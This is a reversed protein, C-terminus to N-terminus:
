RPSHAAEQIGIFSRDCFGLEADVRIREYVKDPDTLVDPDFVRANIAGYTVCRGNKNYDLCAYVSTMVYMGAVNDIFHLAKSTRIVTINREGAIRTDIARARAHAIDVDEFYMLVDGEGEVLLPQGTLPDTDYHSYFACHIYRSGALDKLAAVNAAMCSLPVALAIGIFNLSRRSVERGLTRKEGHGTWDM